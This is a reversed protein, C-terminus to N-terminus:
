ARGGRSSQLPSHSLEPDSGFLRDKVASAGPARSEVLTRAARCDLCAM